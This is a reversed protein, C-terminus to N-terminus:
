QEIMRYLESASPRIKRDAALCGMKSDGIARQIDVEIANSPTFSSPREGKCVKEKIIDPPLGWPQEVLM